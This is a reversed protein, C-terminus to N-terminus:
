SLDRSEADCGGEGSVTETQLESMRPHSWPALTRPRQPDGPAERCVSSGGPAERGGRWAQRASLSDDAGQAPHFPM